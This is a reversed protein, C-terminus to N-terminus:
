FFSSSIHPKTNPRTAKILMCGPGSMGQADWKAKCTGVVHEVPASAPYSSGFWALHTWSLSLDLGHCTWVFEFNVASQWSQGSLSLYVMFLYLPKGVCLVLSGPLQPLPQQRSSTPESVSVSGSLYTGLHPCLIVKLQSGLWGCAGPVQLSDLKEHSHEGYGAAFM